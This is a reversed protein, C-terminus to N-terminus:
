SPAMVAGEDTGAVAGTENTNHFAKVMLTIVSGASVDDDCHGFVDGITAHSWAIAACWSGVSRVWVSPQFLFVGFGNFEWFISEAGHHRISYKWPCVSHRPDGNGCNFGAVDM